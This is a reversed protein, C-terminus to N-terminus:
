SANAYSVHRALVLSTVYWASNQSHQSSGGTRCRSCSAAFPMPTGNRREAAVFFLILPHAYSTCAPQYKSAVHPHKGLPRTVDEIVDYLTQVRVIDAKSDARDSLRSQNVDHGNAVFGVVGSLNLQLDVNLMRKIEAHIAKCRSRIATRIEESARHRYGPRVLWVKYGAAKVLRRKREYISALTAADVGGIGTEASDIGPLTTAFRM